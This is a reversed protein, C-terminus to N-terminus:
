HLCGGTLLQMKSWNLFARIKMVPPTRWRLKFQGEAEFSSWSSANQNTKKMKDVMCVIAEIFRKEVQIRSQSTCERGYDLGVM